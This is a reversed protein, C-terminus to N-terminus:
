VGTHTESGARGTNRSVNLGRRWFLRHPAPQQEMYQADRIQVRPATPQRAQDAAAAAAAEGGANVAQREVRQREM